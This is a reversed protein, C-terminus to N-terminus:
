GPDVATQPTIMESISRSGDDVARIRVPAGPRVKLTGHRIVMEGASLGAVVEVRGPQRAGLQVERQEAKPTEANPNVVFVYTNDGRPVVSEEAILLAEREGRQLELTMLMGPVLRHDANPIRARVTISRTVPNVVSDTSSVMGTFIEDPFAPTTAYILTGRTVSGLYLSPITFDLKMESDDVLTTIVEGPAVRAGPSVQRLGVSGAFPATIIRDELRSRVASVRAQATEAERRREDLLSEAATGKDVLSRVREYQREAEEALSQAEVLLAAEEADSMQVLLQGAKVIEGDDFHIAAIVDSVNATIQVTEKAQLTGLAELPDAITGFQAAQVIVAAPPPGQAASLTSPLLCLALAVFRVFMM